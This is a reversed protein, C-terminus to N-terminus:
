QLRQCQLGQLMSSDFLPNHIEMEGTPALGPCEYVTYEGNENEAESETSLQQQPKQGGAAAEGAEEMAQIRKKENQYHHVQVSQALRIDGSRRVPYRQSGRYATYAMKQALRVEKQLRYWCLVAVLLGSVGVATCIVVLMMSVADNLSPQPDKRPEQIAETQRAPLTPLSPPLTRAPATPTSTQTPLIPDDNLRSSNGTANSGADVSAKIGPPKADKPSKSLLTHILDPIGSPKRDSFTHKRLRRRLCTGGPDEQYQPLCPGCQQAGLVCPQHRQLLCSIKPPCQSLDSQTDAAEEERKPEEMHLLEAVPESRCGRSGAECWEECTDRIAQNRSEESREPVIEIVEQKFRILIGPKVDSSGTVPPPIESEPPETSPLDEEQKVSLSFVSTVVPLSIPPDKMTEKGEWECPQTFYKEDEKKIKFIVDPNVISYGKSVLFGHIEKIVKKYLEKQREGLIDWEVEWFYAAVDRFTVSAPDSLLASM